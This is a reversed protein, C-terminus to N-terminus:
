KRLKVISLRELLYRAQIRKGEKQLETLEDWEIYRYGKKATIMQEPHNVVLDRAAEHLIKALEEEEIKETKKVNYKKLFEIMGEFNLPHKRWDHTGTHMSIIHNEDFTITLTNKSYGYCKTFDPNKEFGLEELKRIFKNGGM